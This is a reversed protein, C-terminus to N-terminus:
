QIVEILMEKIEEKVLRNEILFEKHRLENIYHIDQTKIKDYKPKEM